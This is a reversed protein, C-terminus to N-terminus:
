AKFYNLKNKKENLFFLFNRIELARKSCGKKWLVFTLDLSSLWDVTQPATIVIERVTPQCNIDIYQYISVCDYSSTNRM